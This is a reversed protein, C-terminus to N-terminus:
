KQKLYPNFEKERKISTKIGHGPYIVVDDPLKALKDLSSIVTKNSGTPLDTRGISSYFLTDGSFLISESELYFCCSGETHFPTQIMKIKYDAIVIEENDCLPILNKPLFTLENGEYYSLNKKPNDLLNIEDNSIFCIANPFAHCIEELGGIHDYHSHTLLIAVINIGLKNIHELLPNGSGPDVVFGDKNENWMLYSNCLGRNEYKDFM